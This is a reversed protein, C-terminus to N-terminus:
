QAKEGSETNRKTSQGDERREPLILTGGKALRLRAVRVAQTYPVKLIIFHLAYRAIVSYGVEDKFVELRKYLKPPDYYGYGYDVTTGCDFIIRTTDYFSQKEGYCMQKHHPCKARTRVPNECRYIHAIM